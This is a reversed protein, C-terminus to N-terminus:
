EMVLAWSDIRPSNDPPPLSISTTNTSGGTTTTSGESGTQMVLEYTAASSTTTPQYTGGFFPDSSAAGTEYCGPVQAIGVGFIVSGQAFLADTQNFFQVRETTTASGGKPLWAQGGRSTNEGSVSQTSTKDPMLYHMGGVRSTGSNCAEGNSAPPAYTSFYLGNSFLTMPGTVREGGTFQYYWNVSAHAPTTGVAPYERLSYIYTKTSSTGVLDEQNGTSFAITVDGMSDKATFQVEATSIIPAYAIPQGTQANTTDKYYADFFLDMKWQSPDRSSLNLRWLSGDRDGVYARDAIAGTWGPYAVPQGTIPSDILAETVRNSNISKPGLVGDTAVPRFTRIVEGSDLRVITLSRARLASASTYCPVNARPKLASDFGKLAKDLRPCTTTGTTDAPGDGGPLLAVSIERANGDGPDFFLTTITPTAGSTGFLDDGAANTTLQWLFKPGRDTGPVPDTIDLAFYGPASGGFSQILVTRWVSSTAALSRLDRELRISGDSLKMGGVDRAVPAGDLLQTHTPPYQGYLKPLVAPPIFAWLENNTLSEVKEAATTETTDNSAVKFAHLMGDNTSTYLVLPRDQHGDPNTEHNYKTLAFHQYSEDRLNESPRNVLAPVSHYIDAILSCGPAGRTACRHYKPNTSGNDLGVLWEIYRKSCVDPSLHEDTVCSRSDLQMSASKVVGNFDSTKAGVLSGSYTGVGDNASPTARITRGSHIAAGADVTGMVTYFRREPTASDNVNKAFDDGKSADVAKLTAKPKAGECTFRQREIVGRWLGTGTIRPKFSTYFRFSAAASNSGSASAFVPFTRSTTKRAAKDLVDGLANRLEQETEAFYAKSTGGNYAIENLTCCVKLNPDTTSACDSDTLDACKTTTSLKGDQSAFGIVYVPIAAKGTSGTSLSKAIDQPKEFPCCDSCGECFPRLDMNPEGDTLLIVFNSRCGGKVYPDDKPPTDGSDDPDPDNWYFDQADKLMGAIPTAGFPRTSLLVEQIQRNRDKILTIENESKPPGFAIMKGEWMPATHSRAGVDYPPSTTVACDKPRGTVPTGWSYTWTGKVTDEKEPLTDFTMLGFRIQESFSDLLGLNDQGFTCNSAACPTAASKCFRIATNTPTNDGPAPVCTGSMPRNYALPYLFDAPTTSGLKYWNTFATSNRKVSECQYSNINGTLVEVLNIWRSKTSTGTATCIPPAQVGKVYEMSGSSDVLLLVNPRPPNVDVQASAVSAASLVIALVSVRSTNHRNYTM